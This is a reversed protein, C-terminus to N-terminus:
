GTDVSSSSARARATGFPAAPEVRPFPDPGFSWRPAARPLRDPASVGGLLQERSCLPGFSWRPAARPLLNSSSARAIPGQVGGRAGRRRRLVPVPAGDPGAVARAGRLHPHRPLGVRGGLRRPLVPL